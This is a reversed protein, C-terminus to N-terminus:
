QARHSLNIKSNKATYVSTVLKAMNLHNEFLVFSTEGRRATSVPL